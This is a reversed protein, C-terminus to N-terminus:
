RALTNPGGWRNTNHRSVLSDIMFRRRHTKSGRQWTAHLYLIDHHLRNAVLIDHTGADLYVELTVEADEPLMAVASRLVEDHGFLYWFGETPRFGEVYKEYPARTGWSPDPDPAPTYLETKDTHGGHVSGRVEVSGRTQMKDETHGEVQFIYPDSYSPAGYERHGRVNIRPFTKCLKKLAVTTANKKKEM